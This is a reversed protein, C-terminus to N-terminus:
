GCWRRQRLVSLELVIVDLNRSLLFRELDQGEGLMGGQVVVLSGQQVIEPGQVVECLDRVIRKANAAITEVAEDVFHETEM